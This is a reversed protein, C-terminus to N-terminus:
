SINPGTDIDYVDLRCRALVMIMDATEALENTVTWAFALQGHRVRNNASVAQNQM